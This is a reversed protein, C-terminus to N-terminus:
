KDQKIQFLINVKLPYILNLFISFMRGNIPSIIMGKHFVIKKTDFLTPEGM